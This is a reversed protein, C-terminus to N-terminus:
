LATMTNYDAEIFHLMTNRSLRSCFFIICSRAEKPSSPSHIEADVSSSIGNPRRFYINQEDKKKKKIRGKLPLQRQGLIAVSVIHLLHQWRQQWQNISSCENNVSMKIYLFNLHLSSLRSFIVCASNKQATELLLFWALVKIFLGVLRKWM